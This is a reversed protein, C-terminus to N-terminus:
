GGTDYKWLRPQSVSVSHPGLCDHARELIVRAWPAARAM